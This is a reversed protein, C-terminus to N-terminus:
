VCHINRNSASIGAGDRERNRQPAPASEEGSATRERDIYMWM